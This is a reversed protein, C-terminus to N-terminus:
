NNATVGTFQRVPVDMSHTMIAFPSITFDAVLSTVITGFPVTVNYVRQILADPVGPATYYGGGVLKPVRLSFASLEKLTSPVNWVPTFTYDTYTEDQAYVRVVYPTTVGTALVPTAAWPSVHSPDAPVRDTGITYNVHDTGSVMWETSHSSRLHAGTDFFVNATWYLRTNAGNVTFTTMRDTLSSLVTYYPVRLDVTNAVNDIGGPGLTIAPSGAVSYTLIEASNVQGFGAQSGVTVFTLVFGFMWLLKGLRLHKSM